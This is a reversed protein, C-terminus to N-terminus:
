MFYTARTLNKVALLLAIFNFVNFYFSKVPFNRCLASRLSCHPNSILFFLLSITCSGSTEYYSSAIVRSPSSDTTSHGFSLSTKLGEVVKGLLRDEIETGETGKCM